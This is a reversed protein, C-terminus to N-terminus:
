RRKRMLFFLAGAVGTVAGMFDYVSAVGTAECRVASEMSFTDSISVVGTAAVIVPDAYSTTDTATAVGSASASVGELWGWNETVLAVGDAAVSVVDVFEVLELTTVSGTASASVPDAMGMADVAVVVGESVSSVVDVASQTDTTSAVGTAEASPTDSFAERDTASAEGTAFTSVADTAALLNTAAVEGTASASVTDSVSLVDTVGAIGNASASVTENYATGGGGGMAGSWLVLRDRQIGAWPHLYLERVEAATLARNHIQVDDLLGQIDDDPGECAGIRTNRSTFTQASSGSGSPIGNIYFVYVPNNYTVAVHTWVNTPIKGTSAGMLATYEKLLQLYESGYSGQIRFEVGGSASGGIIAGNGSTYGAWYVWAALAFPGSSFGVDKGIEVYDGTGDFRLCPGFKGAAWTAGIIVGHNNGALDRVINGGGELMPWSGVLGQNIPDGLDLQSGLPPKM